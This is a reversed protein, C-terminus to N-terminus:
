CLVLESLVVVQKIELIVVRLLICCFIFQCKNMWILIKGRKQVSERRDYKVELQVKLKPGVKKKICSIFAILVVLILFASKVTGIQLSYLIQQTCQTCVEFQMFLYSEVQTLFKFDLLPMDM